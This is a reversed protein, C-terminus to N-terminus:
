GNVSRKMRLRALQLFEAQARDASSESLNEGHSRHYTLVDELLRVKLGHERARLFWEASDSYKLSTDLPGVAQFRAQRALLTVTLYGPVPQGLFEIAGSPHPQRFRQIGTVCVDLSPDDRFAQMQLALKDEHWLDDHDIFAIFAGRAEAVGRNRAGAPGGRSNRLLRVRPSFGAVIEPTADTSGDDVVIIEDPLLTQALVSRLTDAIFREGDFAPIIVSIGSPPVTADTLGASTM